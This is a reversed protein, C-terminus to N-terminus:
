WAKLPKIIKIAHWLPSSIEMYTVEYLGDKKGCYSLLTLYDYHHSHRSATVLTKKKRKEKEREKESEIGGM